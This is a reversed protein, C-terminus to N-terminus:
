AEMQVNMETNKVYLNDKSDEKFWKYSRILEKILSSNFLIKLVYENSIQIPM